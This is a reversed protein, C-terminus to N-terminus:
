RSRQCTRAISPWMVRPSIGKETEGQHSLLVLDPPRLAPARASTGTLLGVATEIQAPEFM